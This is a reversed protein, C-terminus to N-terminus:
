LVYRPDSCDCRAGHTHSPQTVAAYVIKCIQGRTASNGPRYELCGTGCSYGSIVDHAYAAEVYGYFPDTAAVDRFTPQSPPPITWNEALAIIKALQARTVSNAPRFELCGTGCSYGSIIEHGFATEVYPFFASGPPVDNFTPTGPTQIEWGEALVVIKCLQGRTTSNYPRFTGDSYGSIVGHCALYSVAQHFYDSAHVDIFSVLCPTPTHTPVSTPTGSPTSVATNTAAVTSTVTPPVPTPTVTGCVGPYREVLTAFVPNTGIHYSGAAWIDGSALSSIANIQPYVSQPNASPFATWASGDWHTTLTSGQSDRRYSGV